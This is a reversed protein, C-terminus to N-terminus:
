KTLSLLAKIRSLMSKTNYNKQKPLPEKIPKLTDEKDYKVMKVYHKM